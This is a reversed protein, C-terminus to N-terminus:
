KNAKNWIDILQSKTLISKKPNLVVTEPFVIEASPDETTHRIFDYGDKKAKEIIKNWDSYVNQRTPNGYTKYADSYLKYLEKGKTDFGFSGTKIKVGNKLPINTNGFEMGVWTILDFSNSRPRLIEYEDRYDNYVEYQEPIDNFAKKLEPSGGLEQYFQKLKKDDNLDLTKGSKLRVEIVKGTPKTNYSYGAYTNASDFNDTLFLPKNTDLKFTKEPTGHYYTPQKSVFEEASKYKKAEQILPDSTPPLKIENKDFLRVENAVGVFDDGMDPSIDTIVGDYGQKILEKEKGDAFNAYDKTNYLKLNVKKTTIKDDKFMDAVARETTWSQNPLIDVIKEDSSHGRYLNGEFNITEPINYISESKIQKNNIIPLKAGSKTKSMGKIVDDAIGKAKTGLFMGGVGLAGMTPNYNMGTFKGQEDYQPEFGLAGGYMSQQVKPPLKPTSKYVEKFQGTGVNRGTTVEAPVATVFSKNAQAIRGTESVPPLNITGGSTGVKGPPLLPFNNQRFINPTISQIGKETPKVIKTPTKVFYRAIKPSRIPFGILDVLRGLKGLISSSFPTKPFFKNLKDAIVPSLIDVGMENELDIIAQFAGAKGEKFLNKLKIFSTDAAQLPTKSYPKFIKEVEDLTKYYASYNKWLKGVDSNEGGFKTLIEPKLEKKLRSVINYKPSDSFRIENIDKMLNIAEDVKLNKFTGDINRYKSLDLGFESEVNLLDGKTKDSINFDTLDYNNKIIDVSNKWDNSMKKRLSMTAQKGVEVANEIGINSQIAGEVKPKRLIYQSFVDEPVETTKSLFKTVGGGVNIDPIKRIGSAVGKALVGGIPLGAGITTGLGPTLPNEEGTQMGGSVDYGYGIGAGIGINKALDKGKGMFTKEVVSPITNQAIPRLLQGTKATKVGAGYAGSTAVDLAVGLGEGYIQGTTKKISPLVNEYTNGGMSYAEQAQKILQEKKTKDTTKKALNMLTDGSEIFKKNSEKISKGTGTMYALSQGVDKGLEVESSILSKGITKLLGDEQGINSKAEFPAIEAIEEPVEKPIKNKEQQYLSYVSKVYKPVNYTVNPNESSQGVGRNGKAYMDPNGSNWMSAIQGVDYGADKWEKIRTYAVKNENELTLPANEDGLIRKAETKWTTPMFQYRSALEGTAGAIQRNGTEHQRIAKALAVAEQDLGSKKPQETPQVTPTVTKQIPKPTTTTTTPPKYAKDQFSLAQLQLANM